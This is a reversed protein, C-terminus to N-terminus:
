LAFKRADYCAIEKAKDLTDVVYLNPKHYVDQAITVMLNVWRSQTVVVVCKRNAKVLRDRLHNLALDGTDISTGINLILNTEAKPIDATELLKIEQNFAAQNETWNVDGEFDWRIVRNTLDEWLVNIM